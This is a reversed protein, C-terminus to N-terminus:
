KSALVYITWPAIETESLWAIGDEKRGLPRAEAIITLGCDAYLARYAEPTCLIDEAPKGSKFERTIIRVVDGSKANKNKPFSKTSFSVWEHLYIEPASVVNILCSSPGMLNRLARFLGKKLEDPINDFPFAALILDFGGTPCDALTEPSCVRYDGEPDLLRASHIMPESIDIGTVCFGYSRLLRSSRGTGCGFDLARNGTVYRRIIGPLDRLVLHYTGDWGLAAYSDAYDRDAYTNTFERDNM